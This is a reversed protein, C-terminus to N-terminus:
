PLSAIFDPVANRLSIWGMTQNIDNRTVLIAIVNKERIRTMFHFVRTSSVFIEEFTEHVPTGSMAGLLQEVRKVTRGGFMEVSSAAIADLYDATFHPVLHYIGLLSGTNVDVIGCAMGNNVNEVVKRCIDSVSAM